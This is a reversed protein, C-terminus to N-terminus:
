PDIKDIIPDAYSKTAATFLHLQGMESMSKLFKDLHPRLVLKYKDRTTTDLGM